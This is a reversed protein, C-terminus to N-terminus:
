SRARLRDGLRREVLDWMVDSINNFELVLQTLTTNRALANAIPIVGRGSMYDHRSYILTRLTDNNQLMNAIIQAEEDGGNSDSLDLYTLSQNNQLADILTRVAANSIPDQWPHFTLSTLGQNVRL